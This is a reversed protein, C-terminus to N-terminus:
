NKCYPFILRQGICLTSFKGKNIGNLLITATLESVCFVYTSQGPLHLNRGIVHWARLPRPVCLYLEVREKVGARSLNTHYVGLGLRKIGAFPVVKYNENGQIHRRTTRYFILMAESSIVAYKLQLLIFVVVVFASFLGTPHVLLLTHLWCIICATHRIVCVCVCV